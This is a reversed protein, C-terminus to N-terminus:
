KKVEIVVDYGKWSRSKDRFSISQIAVGRTPGVVSSAFGPVNTATKMKVGGRRTRLSLVAHLNRRYWGLKIRIRRMLSPRLSKEICDTVCMGDALRSFFTQRHPHPVPSKLYAVNYAIAKDFEVEHVDAQLKELLGAGAKTQILVLSVGKDDDWEPHLVDVGWFDALTLDSQSRGNKFACHHCSPRLIMDSLFARMFPNASHPSRLVCGDQSMSFSFQKWGKGKNRFEVSGIRQLSTTTEKLYMRWVKPSPTGHCIVDVTLLNEYKRALYHHLGAVICPTGTFLVPRGEKLFREADQYSTGVRAQVYKSGMFARVDALTEAHAIEVEWNSDFRAGFVVGGQALTQQALMFFVGGSSSHLRVGDDRNVVALAKHPRGAKGPRAVPCVKECLWCDICLSADVKHYLFGEQDAHLAICRRPCRSVCAGCGCCDQKDIIEIM